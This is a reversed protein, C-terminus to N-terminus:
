LLLPKDLGKTKQQLFTTIKFSLFYTKKKTPYFIRVSAFHKAKKKEKKLITHEIAFNENKKATRAASHNDNNSIFNAAATCMLILLRVLCVPRHACLFPKDVAYRRGNGGM